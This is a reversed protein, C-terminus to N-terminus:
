GWAINHRCRRSSAAAPSPRKVTSDLLGGICIIVIASHAFIYGWKNAAGQKAAILTANDKEVIKIKYGNAAIRDATQQTLAARSIATRWEAKHHFNRLSQERVNERWSRMDKLMKPTNRVICLSTSLVLFGMILLFWWASYMAYLGLKAFVEFWFPGFQNVYNPIPENQKLVTGIVSAIAILALLSIAFRMSSVLEVTEALWRRNTKLQLGATSTTM